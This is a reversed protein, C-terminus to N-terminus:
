APVLLVGARVALRSLGYQDYDLVSAKGASFLKQLGRVNNECAYKFVVDGSPRVNLVRIQRTIQPAAVTTEWHKALLGVVGSGLQSFGTSFCAFRIRRIRRGSVDQGDIVEITMFGNQDSYFASNRIPVTHIHRTLGFDLGPVYDCRRSDAASRYAYKLLSDLESSFWGVASEPVILSGEPSLAQLVTSVRHNMAQLAGIAVDLNQGEVLIQQQEMATFHLSSIRDSLAQFTAQFTM